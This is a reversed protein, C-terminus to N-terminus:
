GKGLGRDLLPNGSLLRRTLAVSVLLLGCGSLLALGRTAFVLDLGVFGLGAVLLTWLFSTYGEVREGVNWVLGDGSLLNQAYRLIIFADDSIADYVFAHVVLVLLAATLLVPFLRSLLPEM